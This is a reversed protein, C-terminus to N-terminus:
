SSSLKALEDVIENKGRLIHLYKLSDFNNELKCFEQCYLFIKDDLCSWENNFQNVIFLSDRLVKLRCIGLTTAM